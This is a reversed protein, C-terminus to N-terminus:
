RTAQELVERLKVRNEMAAEVAEERNRLLAFIKTLEKELVLNAEHNRAKKEDEHVVGDSTKYATIKEM